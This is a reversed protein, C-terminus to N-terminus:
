LGGGCARRYFPYEKRTHKEYMLLNMMRLKKVQKRRREYRTTFKGHLSSQIHVSVRVGEPEDCCRALAGRTQM